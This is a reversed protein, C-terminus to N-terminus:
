PAHADPGRDRDLASLLAERARANKSGALTAEMDARVPMSTKALVALALAPEEEYHRFSALEAKLVPWARADGLGGLTVAAARRVPRWRHRLYPLLREREDQAKLKGLTALAAILRKHGRSKATLQAVVAETASADGIQGLADLATAAFEDDKDSLCHCLAAVAAKDRMWGLHNAAANRVARDKLREILAPGVRDAHSFLPTGDIAAARVAERPDALAALLTDIAAESANSGLARAAERTADYDSGHHLWRAAEAVFPMSRLAKKALIFAGRALVPDDQQLLPLLLPELWPAPPVNWWNWQSWQPRAGLTRALVRVLPADGESAELLAQFSADPRDDERADPGLLARAAAQRVESAPHRLAADLVRRRAKSSVNRLNDVVCAQIAPDPDAFARELHPETEPSSIRALATLAVIRTERDGGFAYEALADIAAAGQYGLGDLAAKRVLPDPADLAPQLKLLAFYDRLRRHTFEVTGSRKLLLAQGAHEAFRSWRAPLERRLVLTVRLWPSLWWRSAAAAIRAEAEDARRKIPPSDDAAVTVAFAALGLLTALGAGTSPGVLLAGLALVGVGALLGHALTPVPRISAIGSLLILAVIPWALEGLRPLFAAGLASLGLAVASVSVVMARAPLEDEGILRSLMVCAGLLLAVCGIERAAGVDPLATPWLAVALAALVWAPLALKHGLPGDHRLSVAGGLLVIAGAAVLAGALAPRVMWGTHLVMAHALLGFAALAALVVAFAGGIEGTEAAQKSRGFGWRLLPPGTAAALWWPAPTASPSLALCALAGAAWLTFLLVAEIAPEAGSGASSKRSLFEHLRAMSFTTQMRTSMQVALWGLQRDVVRPSLAYESVPVEFQPDRNLPRGRARREKRQLMREVFAALLAQRRQLASAHRPIQEAPLDAYALVMMSLTLPVEALERLGADDRLAQAIGPVRAAALYLEVQEPGLPQLAVADEMALRAGETDRLAAYEDNRSCVLVPLDTQPRLLSDNLLRAVDARRQDNVEDLGDLLLVLRETHLWERAAPVPVGWAHLEEVLWNEVRRDGGAHAAGRGRDRWGAWGARKPAAQVDLRSLSAVLPLPASADAAAKALLSTALHLLATTKGAGPAGLVLLRRHSRDFAEELTSSRDVQPGVSVRTTVAEPAHALGIDVFRAHLLAWDLQNRLDKGLKAIYRERAKDLTRAALGPMKSDTASGRPPPLVDRVLHSVFDVIAQKTAGEGRSDLLEQWSPHDGRWFQLASLWDHHEWGCPSVRVPLVPFPGLERRKLLRPVEERLIFESRLFNDSILLVAADATAIAREIEPHWDEGAQLVDDAWLEGGYAAPLADFQSRLRDKWDKDLRAYCVFLRTGM